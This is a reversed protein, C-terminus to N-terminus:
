NDVISFLANVEHAELYQWGTSRLRFVVWDNPGTVGRAFDPVVISLGGLTAVIPYEDDTPSHFAEQPHSHIQSVLTMREHYLFVNIRHLEDEGVVYMLGDPTRLSTQRPIITSLVDFKDGSQRGAWLAVGELGRSGLNRLHEYTEGLTEPTVIVRNVNSILEKM